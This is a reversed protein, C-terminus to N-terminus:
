LNRLIMTGTKEKKAMPEEVGLTKKPAARRKYSTTGITGRKKEGQISLGTLRQKGM